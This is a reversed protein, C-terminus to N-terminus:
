AVDQKGVQFLSSGDEYDGINMVQAIIREPM